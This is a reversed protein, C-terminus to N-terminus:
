INKTKLKQIFKKKIDDLSEGKHHVQVKIKTNTYNPDEIKSNNMKTM